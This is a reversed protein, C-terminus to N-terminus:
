VWPMNRNVLSLGRRLQVSGAESWVVSVPGDQSITLVRYRPEQSILKIASRHRMGFQEPDLKKTKKRIEDLVEFAKMKPNMEARIEAGFGFFRGDHTLVIAGDCHATHAVFRTAEVLESQADHQRLLAELLRKRVYPQKREARLVDDIARHRANMFSIFADRLIFSDAPYKIKILDANPRVNSPVMIIAGGHHSDRISNAIGAFTNWYAVFEFGVIESAPETKPRELRKSIEKLGSNVVAHLSLDIDLGKHGEIVGDRLTAVHFGGQNIRLSGPREAQILLCSPYRYQYELGMRARYWSTGLDFLGAIRWEKRDWEVWIASKRMDVAPALRRLESVSMPRVDVFPWARDSETRRFDAGVPVAVINFQPFAAEEPACSALFAVELLEDLLRGSPCPPVVYDGGVIRNWRRRVVTALQRPFARM